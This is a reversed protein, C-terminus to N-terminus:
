LIKLESKCKDPNKQTDLCHDLDSEVNLQIQSSGLGMKQIKKM